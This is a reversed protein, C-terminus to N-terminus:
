QPLPAPSPIDTTSPPVPAPAKVPIKLKQGVKISDTRLNNASRIARVTVHYQAAIRSLTDGSKVTYIPTDSGGAGAVDSPETTTGTSPASPAPVQIKQGIQLKTPEIGPNAEQLAKTTVHFKKAITSYTDGKVITYETTAAPTIPVIPPQVIPNQDVPPITNSPPVEVVPAENTPVVVPAVPEFPPTETNTPMEMSVPPPAEERRCGQMLLAMLGIGHVALVFFVAIKVRARGKNKQELFSGQPILPSQQNNM